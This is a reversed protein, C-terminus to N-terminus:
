RRGFREKLAAAVEPSLGRRGVPDGARPQILMRGREDVIAALVIEDVSEDGM